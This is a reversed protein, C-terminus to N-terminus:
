VSWEMCEVFSVKERKTRLERYVQLAVVVAEASPLDRITKRTHNRNGNVFSEALETALTRLEQDRTM